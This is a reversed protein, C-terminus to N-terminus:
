LIMHSLVEETCFLVSNLPLQLSAVTESTSWTAYSSLKFRCPLQVVTVTSVTTSPLNWAAQMELIVRSRVVKKGQLQFAVSPITTTKRDTVDFV